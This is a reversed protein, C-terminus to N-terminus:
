IGNGRLAALAARRDKARMLTEGILVADIHNEELVRVDGTNRIGSEAVFLIDGPVFSRLRISNQLDVNFTRLDRNNVGIIRAGATLASDIEKEDHAEVLCSLGLSDAHTIYEKLQVRTLVAAILLVADAAMCCAQEIQYPDVIFDKRLLPLGVAERIEKLYQDKGLFYDPETLVSIAAAGAAEYDRAIDLYPFEPAILGKSPSAKKVECIFSMGRARLAEEFAFPKLKRATMPKIQPNEEKEREARRRSAAVLDDLISM